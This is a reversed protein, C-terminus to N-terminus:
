PLFGDAQGRFARVPGLRRQPRDRVQSPGLLGTLVAGALLPWCWALVCLDVALAPIMLATSVSINVRNNGDFM